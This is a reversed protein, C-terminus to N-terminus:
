KQNVAGANQANSVQAKIAELAADGKLRMGMEILIDGLDARDAKADDLQEVSRDLNDELADINKQLGARTTKLEGELRQEAQALRTTLEKSLEQLAQKAAARSASLEESLKDLSATTTEALKSLGKELEARTEALHESSSKANRDISSQLKQLHSNNEREFQGFLIERIQDMSGAAAVAADVVGTAQNKRALKGAGQKTHNGM